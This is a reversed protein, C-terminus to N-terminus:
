APRRGPGVGGGGGAALRERARTRRRQRALRPAIFAGREGLREGARQRYVVREIRTFFKDIGAVSDTTVHQALQPAAVPDDLVREVKVAHIALLRREGDGFEQAM